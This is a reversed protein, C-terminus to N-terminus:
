RAILRREGIDGEKLVSREASAAKNPENNAEHKYANDENRRDEKLGNCARASKHCPNHEDRHSNAEENKGENRSPDRANDRRM